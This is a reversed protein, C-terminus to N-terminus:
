GKTVLSQIFTTTNKPGLVRVTIRYQRSNPPEFKDDIDVASTVVKEAKVLCERLPDIVVAVSCMREVVYRVEYANVTLEPAASWDVVPMNNADQAQTQNWYWGAIDQNEQLAPVARVANFAANLGVESAQLSADRFQANGASLTSAESMRVLALAGLLMVTLLVIVVLITVGRPQAGRLLHVSKNM